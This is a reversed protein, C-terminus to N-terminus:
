TDRRRKNNKKLCFGAYSRRMLSQLESTHEESRRTSSTIARLPAMSRSAAKVLRVGTVCPALLPSVAHVGGVGAAGEDGDKPALQQAEHLLTLTEKGGQHAGQDPQQDEGGAEAGREAKSRFLTTYPFLTDTRTSRPPRRIM